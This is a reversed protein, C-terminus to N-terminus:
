KGGKQKKQNILICEDLQSQIKLEEIVELYTSTYNDAFDKLNHASLNFIMQFM